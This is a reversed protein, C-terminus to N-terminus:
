EESSEDEEVKEEKTEEVIKVDVIPGVVAGDDKGYKKM